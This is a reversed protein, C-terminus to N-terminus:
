VGASTSSMARAMRRTCPAHAAVCPQLRARQLVDAPVDVHEVAGPGAAVGVDAQGRHALPQVARGDFAAEREARAAGEEVGGRAVGLGDLVEGAAGLQQGDAGDVQAVREGGLLLQVREGRGPHAEQPEEGDLLAGFGAEGAVPVDHVEGEGAAQHQQVVAVHAAEAGCQGPAAGLHDEEVQM